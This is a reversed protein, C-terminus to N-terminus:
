VMGKFEYITNGLKDVYYISILDKENIQRNLLNVNLM